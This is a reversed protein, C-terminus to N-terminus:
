LPKHLGGRKIHDILGIFAKILNANSDLIIANKVTEFENEGILKQEGCADKLIALVAELHPSQAFAIKKQNLTQNEPIEETEPPRERTESPKDKKPKKNM